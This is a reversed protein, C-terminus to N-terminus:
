KILTDVLNLICVPLQLCSSFKYISIQTGTCTCTMHVTGTTSVVAHVLDLVLNLVSYMSHVHLCQNYM